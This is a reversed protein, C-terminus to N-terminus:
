AKNGRAVEHWLWGCTYGPALPWFKWFHALKIAMAETKHKWGHFGGFKNHHGMNGRYMVIDFIRKGYKRDTETLSYGVEKEMLGLYDVLISGCAKWVREMGLAKLHVRLVELNPNENENHNENAKLMVALDCFQRLGVGLAMLHFWLHLFLFLAHLTPSLTRIQEGDIEVAAGKDNEIVRRFYENREKSLLDTLVFHAEYVNGDYWFDAHKESGHIEANVNWKDRVVELVKEFIDGICYFDIDGSQRLLPTPYYSAVVQGKVVEYNISDASLIKQLAIIGQNVHWSQAKIQEQLGVAEFVKDQPLGVNNRILAEIALGSVAQKEAIEFLRSAEEASLSVPLEEHCHWLADRLLLFLLKEEQSM